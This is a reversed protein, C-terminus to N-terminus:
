SSLSVVLIAPFPFLGLLSLIRVHLLSAISCRWAGGPYVRHRRNNSVQLNWARKEALNFLAPVGLVSDRVTSSSSGPSKVVPEVASRM